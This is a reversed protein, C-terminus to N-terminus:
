IQFNRFNTLTEALRLSAFASPPRQLLNLVEAIPDMYVGNSNEDDRFILNYDRIGTVSEIDLALYECDSSLRLERKVKQQLLETIYPSFKM